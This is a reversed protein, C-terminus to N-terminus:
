APPAAGLEDALRHKGVRRALEALRATADPPLSFTPSLKRCQDVLLLADYERRAEM